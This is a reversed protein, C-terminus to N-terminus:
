WRYTLNGKIARRKGAIVSNSYFGPTYYEEDTLNIGSVGLSLGALGPHVQSLDYSASADFLTYGDIEAQTGTGTDAATLSSGVYRLGAGVRLGALAATQFDHNVWLGATHYPM